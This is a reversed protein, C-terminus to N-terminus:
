IFTLYAESWLTCVNQAHELSCYFDVYNNTKMPLHTIVEALAIQCSPPIAGDAFDRILQLRFASRVDPPLAAFHNLTSKVNMM